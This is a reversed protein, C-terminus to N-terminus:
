APVIARLLVAQEAAQKSLSHNAIVNSRGAAAIRDHLEDDGLVAAIKARLDEVSGEDAILGNVGHDIIEAIGAAPWAVVPLGASQAELVGLPMGELSSAMAMVDAARFLDGIDSRHGLFRVRGPAAREAQKELQAAFAPDLSGSGAIALRTGSLEGNLGAVAEIVFQVGKRPDLRSASLVLPASPDDTMQARVLPDAAGPEIEAPDVGNAIVTVSSRASAPLSDRVDNSVAISAASMKVALGRAKGLLDPESEEHLHLEVPVGALKGALACELHSWHSNAHIVDADVRRALRATRVATALIQWVERAALVPALRGSKDRVGRARPATLTERPLGLEEWAEGTASDEPAALIQTIGLVALLPALRLLYRQAGWLGEGQEVVLVTLERVQQPEEAM